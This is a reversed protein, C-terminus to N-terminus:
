KAIVRLTDPIVAAFVVNKKQRAPDREVDKEGSDRKKKQQRCTQNIEQVLRGVRRRGFHEGDDVLKERRV